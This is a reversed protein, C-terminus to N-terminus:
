KKGRIMYTAMWPGPWWGNFGTNKYVINKMKLEEFVNKYEINKGIDVIILEGNKKLVRYAEMLAKKRGESNRINHIAINSIIFDFTEDEFPLDMMNATVLETKNAVGEAVANMKAREINNEYQDNNRWLDIGIAKSRNNIKKAVAYLIAGRGCGIDLFKLDYNTNITTLIEDWIKFKGKLTTHLFICCFIVGLLAIFSIFYKFPYDKIVFIISIISLIVTITVYGVFVVPADISYKGRRTM